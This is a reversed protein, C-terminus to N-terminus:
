PRTWPVNTATPQATRVTCALRAALRHHRTGPRDQGRPDSERDQDRHHDDPRPHHRPPAAARARDLHRPHRPVGIVGALASPMEAAAAAHEAREILPLISAEKIAYARASIDSAAWEDLEGRLRAAEARHQAAEAGDPRYLDAADPAALVDLTVLTVLGDLWETTVNVCGHARCKYMLTGLRNRYGCLPAGCECAALYSLLHKQRSPRQRDRARLVATAAYHLDAPIVPSWAPRWGGDPHRRLGAYAPNLGIQRITQRDWGNGGAGPIGRRELDAKIAMIPEGAAIRTIIEAAVPGTEPDPEQRIYKGSEQDYIRRIGYGAQGHPKGKRAASALHRKIRLSTEDSAYANNVGDEALTKWDRANRPDYLREHTEVYIRVGLERCDELFGLWEYAKRDGRSSEWLWVITFRRDRLDALLLTWDKRDKKAYRSASRDNDRYKLPRWGETECRAAGVEEQEDVSAEDNRDKSCRLYVATVHDDTM